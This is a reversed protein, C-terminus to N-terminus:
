KTLIMRRTKVEKGSIVLSYIYMGAPLEHGEITISDMSSVVPVQKHMKGSMDFIYIYANKTNTPLTFRITTRETFPNPTNQALTAEIPISTAEHVDTTEEEDVTMARAMMPKTEVGKLENLEAKLEQISRILIPVLEIYNVGLTGDQNERVVDPYIERIEQASLGYHKQQSMLLLNNQTQVKSGLLLREEADLEDEEQDDPVPQPKYTYKIVNMNMLNDLTSGVTEEEEEISIINEKLTIDSPTIVETATLTGKVYTPGAFYGAYSGDVPEGFTKGYGGATGYVGVGKQTASVGGIVGYAMGNSANSCYGFIGISPTEISSDGWIRSFVGCTRGKVKPLHLDVAIGSGRGSMESKRNGITLWANKMANRGISLAGTSDVKVQAHLILPSALFFALFSFIGTFRSNM